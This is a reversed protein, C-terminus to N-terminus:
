LRGRKMLQKFRYVIPLQGAMGWRGSYWGSYAYLSGFLLGGLHGAHDTPSGDQTIGILDSAIFMSVAVPLPMYFMRPNMRVNDLPFLAAAVASIAMCSGSAGLSPKDAHEVRERIQPPLDKTNQISQSEALRQLRDREDKSLPPQTKGTVVNQLVHTASCSLGGLVYIKAFESPGIVRIAPFGFLWLAFMNGAIHLFSQHSVSAAILSWPREITNAIDTTFHEMMWEEDQDPQNWMGFVVMNIGTIFTLGSWASEGSHRPKLITSEHRLYFSTPIPGVDVCRSGWKTNHPGFQEPKPGLSRLKTPALSTQKSTRRAKNFLQRHWWSPRISMASPRGRQAVCSTRVLCTMNAFCAITNHEVTIHFHSFPYM